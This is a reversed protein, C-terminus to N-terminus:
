IVGKLRLVTVIAAMILTLPIHHKFWYKVALTKGVPLDGILHGTQGNMAFSYTQGNWKTNLFWVPFLGYKVQGKNTVTIKEKKTTVTEYCEVSDRFGERVSQEMREYVRATLDDPEQDYKDAMYGSLYSLNFEKLDVYDYPEIAEMMTDDIGKSGDVPIKQFKMKGARVVCYHSTETYTYDDDDWVRSRTADYQFRGATDLDFLWFPVYVAKIEEIHNENKFVRPLLPKGKYHDKLAQVAEKKSKKFPIVYDPRYTDKFQDPMIMPNDCYLCVTAGTTKDALVEAGCSPCNWVAMNSKEDAQWQEPEFGEWHTTTDEKVTDQQEALQELEELSYTNGCYECKMKQSKSDFALGASCNPCKYNVTDM